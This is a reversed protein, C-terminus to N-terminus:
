RLPSRIVHRLSSGCGCISDGRLGLLGAHAEHAEQVGVVAAHCATLGRVDRMQAVADGVADAQGPGHLGHVHHILEGGDVAHARDALDSEHRVGLRELDQGVRRVARGHGDVHEVVVARGPLGARAREELALDRGARGLAEARLGHELDLEAQRALLGVAREHREVLRQAERGRAHRERRAHDVVDDGREFRLAHADVLVIGLEAMPLLLQRDAMGVRQAGGVVLDVVALGHAVHGVVVAKVRRERGLGPGVLGAVARVDVEAQPVFGPALVGHVIRAVLVAQAPEAVVEDGADEVM